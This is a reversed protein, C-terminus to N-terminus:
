KELKINKIKFYKKAYIVADWIPLTYKSIVAILVVFRAQVDELLTIANIMGNGLM